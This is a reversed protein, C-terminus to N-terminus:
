PSESNSPQRSRTEDLLIGFCTHKLQWLCVSLCVATLGDLAGSLCADSLQCHISLFCYTDTLVKCSKLSTNHVNIAPFLNQFLATVLKLHEEGGFNNMVVLPATQLNLLLLHSQCAKALCCSQDCASGLTCHRMMAATSWWTIASPVSCLNM